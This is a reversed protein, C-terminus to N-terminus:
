VIKIQLGVSLYEIGYNCFEELDFCYTRERNWLDDIVMIGSILIPIFRISRCGNKLKVVKMRQPLTSSVVFCTGMFGVFTLLHDVM